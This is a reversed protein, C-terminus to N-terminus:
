THNPVERFDCYLRKTLRFAAGLAAFSAQDLLATPSFWLRFSQISASWAASVCSHSRASRCPLSDMITPQMLIYRLLSM